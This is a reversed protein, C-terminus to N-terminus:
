RVRCIYRGVKKYAIDGFEAANRWINYVFAPVIGDYRDYEGRYKEGILCRECSWQSKDASVYLVTYGSVLAFPFLEHDLAIEDNCFADLADSEVNRRRLDIEGNPIHDTIAFYRRRAEALQEDYTARGSEESVDRWIYAVKDYAFGVPLLYFVLDRGRYRFRDIEALAKERDAFKGGHMCVRDIKIGSTRGYVELRWSQASSDPYESYDDYVSVAREDVFVFVQTGRRTKAFEPLAESLSIKRETVM